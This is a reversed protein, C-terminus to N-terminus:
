NDIKGITPIHQRSEDTKFVYNIFDFKYKKQENTANNLAITYQPNINYYTLDKNFHIVYIHHFLQPIALVINKFIIIRPIFQLPNIPGITINFLETLTFNKFHTFYKLELYNTDEINKEFPTMKYNNIYNSNIFFRENICTSTNNALRMIKYNESYIGGFIGLYHVVGYIQPICIYFILAKQKTNFNRFFSM